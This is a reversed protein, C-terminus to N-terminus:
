NIERNTMINSKERWDKSPLLRTRMFNTLLILSKLYVKITNNSYGFQGHESISHNNMMFLLFQYIIMLIMLVLVVLYFVM